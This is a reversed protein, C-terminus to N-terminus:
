LRMFMHNVYDHPKSVRPTVIAEQGCGGTPWTKKLPAGGGIHGTKEKERDDDGARV